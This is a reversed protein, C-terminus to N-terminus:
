PYKEGYHFAITVIDPLNIIGHPLALDAEPNWRSEGEECQYISSALVIDLINVTGDHNVDGTTTVPQWPKMLPYRDSNTTDIVCPADGIGDSSTENQYLGSRVDTGGYNSWYNGGSPYSNDWINGYRFSYVHKSNGIFNNHYFVSRSSQFIWVGVGNGIINNESITHSRTSGRIWIGYNENATINNGSIANSGSASYLGIGYGNNAVNNASITNNSSYDFRIGDENDTINNGHVTNNAPPGYLQGAYGIDTVGNKSMLNASPDYYFRIGYSTSASISNGFIMNNTSSHDVRIGDFNSGINNTAIVCDRTFALVVGQMNNTLSLNKVDIRTCNVLAVYGADLPVTMNRRNVWYYVPKGNVTNSDDIDQVYGSFSETFVGFNYRNESANNHRLTNFTSSGFLGIGYENGTVNNESITNYASDDLRIGYSFAGIEMNKVTVNNRGSLHIGTENGTGQITHGKGDVVIHDREIVISSNTDGTLIYTVNDFTSIPATPPDISGDARVYIAETANALQISSVFFFTGVLLVLSVIGSCM